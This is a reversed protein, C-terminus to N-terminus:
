IHAHTNRLLNETASSHRTKPNVWWWWWWWWKKSTSYQYLTSRWMAQTVKADNYSPRGHAACVWWSCMKRLAEMAIWLLHIHNTKGLCYTGDHAQIIFFIFFLFRDRVCSSFFGLVHRINNVSLVVRHYNHTAGPRADCRNQMAYIYIYIHQQPNPFCLQTPNPIQPSAADGNEEKKNNKSKIVADSGSTYPM